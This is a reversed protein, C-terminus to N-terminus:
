DKMEHCLDDLIQPQQDSNPPPHDPSGNGADYELRLGDGGTRDIRITM